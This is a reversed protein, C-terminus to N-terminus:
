RRAMRGSLLTSNRIARVLAEADSVTRLVYPVDGQWEDAFKQQGPKLKAKGTKVEILLNVRTQCSLQAGAIGDPGNPVSLPLWSLGAKRLYDV